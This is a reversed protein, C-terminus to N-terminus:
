EGVELSAQEGTEPSASANELALDVAKQENTYYADIREVAEEKTHSDLYNPLTVGGLANFIDGVCDSPTKGWQSAIHGYILQYAADAEKAPITEGSNRPTPTPTSAPAPTKRRGSSRATTAPTEKPNRDPREFYEENDVVRAGSHKSLHDMFAERIVSPVAALHANRKAKGFAIRNANADTNPQSGRADITFTEGTKQWTARWVGDCIWVDAVVHDNTKELAMEPCLGQMVCQQYLEEAGKASIGKVPESRGKFPISYIAQEAVRDIVATTILNQLEKSSPDAKQIQTM